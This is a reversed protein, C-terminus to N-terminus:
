VQKRWEALGKPGGLNQNKTMAIEKIDANVKRLM